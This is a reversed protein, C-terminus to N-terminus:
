LTDWWTTHNTIIAAHEPPEHRQVDITLAGGAVMHAGAPPGGAEWTWDLSQLLWSLWDEGSQERAPGAMVLYDQARTLAVYALREREAREMRREEALAARYAVPQVWEAGERLKIAVGYSRRVLMTPQDKLPARGLDPLVVVPFELGKSRHVTMLRVADGGELPAEGERAEQRLADELYAGFTALESVGADRAVQLLKEVNVRRREGDQLGSITVMYGTRELAARLLDVVAVRGRLALLDHLVDHAFLVSPRLNDNAADNEAADCLAQWLSQQNAFRLRLISADDLAFLPSRLVGVLSFDDRPDELFSLLNILDRVENRGYYGRGATTLFPVGEARLAAEYIEFVTSAQFLMAVDGYRMKRWAGHENVLSAGEDVMQRIRRALVLAEYSRSDLPADKAMRPVIHLEAAVPHESPPRFARLPAFAVEFPHPLGSRHMIHAFAHNVMAVLRDHARFSTDLLVERGGHERVDARAAGFVSVDAGRFRYISQKDDAVIFLCPKSADPTAKDPAYGALTYILDRQTPNTDQFEDVFLAALEHQWYERVHPYDHLLRLALVELDDFDVADRTDKASRYREAAVHYCAALGQGVLAAQRERVDDWTAALMDSHSRYCERLTKLCNKAAQVHDKSGWAGMTGGTLNLAGLAELQDFSVSEAHEALEHLLPVIRLFQAGIKDHEQALPLLEDFVVVAARWAPDAVMAHLAAQQGAMFAAHWRALLDDVDAPMSDLAARAEGGGRLLEAVLESVESLSFAGFLADIAAREPLMASADALRALMGALAGRVSEHLLVGAQVEDLVTFRPDLGTEAPHARLLMGCFSHITGIRAAEIEARRDEWVARDDGHAAAARQELVDRVRDRMERAAKDTFTIALLREPAHQELLRVYREVLVRTKGSGAGAVVVLDCGDTSIAEHQATTFNTMIMCVVSSQNGTM